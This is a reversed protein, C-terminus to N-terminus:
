TLAARYWRFARRVVGTGLLSAMFPLVARREGRRLAELLRSYGVRKRGALLWYTGAALYHRRLAADKWPVPLNELYRIYAESTAALGLPNALQYEATCIRGAVDTRYLVLPTPDFPAPGRRRIIEAWLLGEGSVRLNPYELSGRHLFAVDVVPILEGAPQWLLMSLDIECPGALNDMPKRSAAHLARFFLLPSQNSASRTRQVVTRLAGPLVIFDSDIPICWRGRAQRLAVNRAPGPGSNNPTRFNLVKDPHQSAIQNLYEWSGDTSCDDVVLVEVPLQECQPLLSNFLDRLAALRNYTAVIVSLELQTGSDM